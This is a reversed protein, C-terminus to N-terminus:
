NASQRSDFEDRIDGVLRELIDELTVFGVVTDDADQVLASHVRSRRLVEFADDLKDTVRVTVPRRAVSSIPERRKDSNNARFVDKVHVMGIINTRGGQFVPFRSYGSDAMFHAIHSIPVEGDVMVAKDHPIMIKKVSTDDFKFLREIFEHEFSDTSGEELGIHLLSRIEDEIELDSEHKGPMIRILGKSLGELVVVLPWLLYSLALIPWAVVLGITSAYAHALSKPFIEGFLLILFTVIGTAIGVGQSGWFTIALQTALAASYVNVINNGILIIILLRHPRKKLAVLARSGPRKGQRLGQVTARSLSFLAIESGSFIGSLVVLVLFLILTGVLGM